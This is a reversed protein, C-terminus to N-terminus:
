ITWSFNSTFLNCSLYRAFLNKGMKEFKEIRLSVHTKLHHFSNPPKILWICDYIRTEIENSLMKMMTIAGGLSEVVGGCDTIPIIMGKIENEFIFTVKAKYGPGTGGNAYFRIMLSPGNSILIPPRFIMGSYVHMREGDYDYIEMTSSYSLKFDLFVLQIRCTEISCTLIHEVGYDRPYLSPFFSSSIFHNHSGNTNRLTGPYSTIAEQNEQQYNINNNTSQNITYISVRQYTNSIFPMQIIIETCSNLRYLDPKVGINLKKDVYKLQTYIITMHHSQYGYSIVIANEKIKQLVVKHYTQEVILFNPNLHM